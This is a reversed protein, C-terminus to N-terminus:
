GVSCDGELFGSADGVTVNIVIGFDELRKRLLSVDLNGDNSIDSAVDGYWSWVARQFVLEAGAQGTKGVM